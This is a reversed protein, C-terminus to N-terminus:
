TKKLNKSSWLNAFFSEPEGMSRLKKKLYANELLAYKMREEMKKFKKKPFSYKGRRDAKGETLEGNKYKIVWDRIESGHKVGYERALTRFGGAGDLYLKVLNMKFEPDRYVYKERKEAM